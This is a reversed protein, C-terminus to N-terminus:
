DPPRQTGDDSGALPRRLWRYGFVILAIPLALQSVSRVGTFEPQREGIMNIAVWILISVGIICSAAGLARMPLSLIITQRLFRRGTHACVRPRMGTFCSQCPYGSLISATGAVSAATQDPIWFAAAFLGLTGGVALALRIVARQM